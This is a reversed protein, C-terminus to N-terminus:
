NAATSQSLQVLRTNSDCIIDMESQLRELGRQSNVEVHKVHKELERNLNSQLKATKQEREFLTNAHKWNLVNGGLNLLNLVDRQHRSLTELELREELSLSTKMTEPQMTTERAFVATATPFLDEWNITETEPSQTTPSQTTTTTPKTLM